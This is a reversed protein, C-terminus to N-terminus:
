AWTIVSYLQRATSVKFQGDVKLVTSGGGDLTIGMTCGLNILTQMGRAINSDARVAIIIKNSAPNYGIVPRQTARGIDSFDRIKGDLCRRISFGEEKMRIKPLISCGGVAFRVNHETTIDAISKVAVTGDNYVILTGAPFMVGKDDVHPQRNCLVKGQSVLISIPRSKKGTSSKVDKDWTIYGPTVFSKLPIRNAAMDHVSVRLDLPDVEVVHTAAVRYYRYM